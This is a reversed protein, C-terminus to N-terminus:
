SRWLQKKPLQILPLLNRLPTPQIDMVAMIVRPGHTKVGVGTPNGEIKSDELFWQKDIYPDNYSGNLSALEYLYNPQVYLVGPMAAYEDLLQATSKNEDKVLVIRANSSAQEIQPTDMADSTASTDAAASNSSSSDSSAGNGAESMTVINENSSQAVAEDADAGVLLEGDTTSAVTESFSFLDQTEYQVSRSNSQPLQGDVLVLVEGEVYTGEELSFAEHPAAQSNPGKM